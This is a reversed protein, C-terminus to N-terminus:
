YKSGPCDPGGLRLGVGCGLLNYGWLGVVGGVVNCKGSKLFGCGMVREWLGWEEM